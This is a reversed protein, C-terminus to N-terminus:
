TYYACTGDPLLQYVYYDPETRDYHRVTAVGSANLYADTEIGWVGLVSQDEEDKGCSTLVGLVLMTLM